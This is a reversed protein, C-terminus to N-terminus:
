KRSFLLQWTSTELQWDLVDLIGYCAIPVPLSCTQMPAQLLVKPFTAVELPAAISQFARLGSHLSAVPLSFTHLPALPQLSLEDYILHLGTRSPNTPHSINFLSKFDIRAPNEIM